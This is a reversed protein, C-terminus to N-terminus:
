GARREAAQRLAEEKDTPQALRREAAQRFAEEKDPTPKSQMQLYREAAQRFAADRDGLVTAGDTEAPARVSPEPGTAIIAGAVGGTGALAIAAAVVIHRLSFWSGATTELQMPERAKTQGVM